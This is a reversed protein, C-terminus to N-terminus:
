DRTTVLIHRVLVDSAPPTPQMRAVLKPVDYTELREALKLCLRNTGGGFITIQWGPRFLGREIRVLCECISIGDIEWHQYNEGKQIVRLSDQVTAAILTAEM